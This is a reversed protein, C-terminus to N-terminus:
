DNQNEDAPTDNQNQEQNQQDNQNQNDNQENDNQGNNNNGSNGTDNSDSQNDQNNNQNEDQGNNQEENPDNAQQSDPVSVQTSAPDGREGNAFPTVTITYTKGPQAGNITIGNSNATQTQGDVSVEFTASGDYDWSVDIAGSSESYSAQLNSVSSLKEDETDESGTSVSVSRAESKESSSTSVAVVQIEYKAGQQVSEINFSDDGTTGINQMGGGNVSASVVFSADEDSDHDWDVEIRNNSEDYNATLNSVPPFGDEKPKQVQQSPTNGKVFLENTTNGSSGSAIVAPNSGRVVPLEVVSDPKSFDPSQKGESLKEMTNKFLYLPIQTNNSGPIVDKKGNDDTYGGAWVSITYNTSYGAFWADPSGERDPLSTTGTKGAIPVGSVQANKGTGEQVVTKMMDTVMYATYDSMAAEPKPKLDVTKGDPYEVKLVAHPKNYVGENGFASYAGALQLPTVGTGTGGIADRISIKDDKFNIGLGESFKQAKDYGTEELTKVAPVNLSQALAHRISMMGGYSRNWNRIESNGVKYPKDDNIQHYTSWKNYEIAPGYAVIPKATSGPQQGGMIANNWGDVNENNRNGGIARIEGTKTDVVTMGVQMEKDPYPIPNSESDTLLSQVHDQAKTDLTTYIKLGDTYMNTGDLKEDIEKRVEQLFAQYPTKTEQKKDTLLSPIDTKLAEDAQKQTIKGHRVMLKLVTQMREKTLEPHEFPNYASPRQPMGALIAAEPLTLDKLDKKGFYTEAAAAVGYAGSGYYIKNLYMQLIEEKSYERELKLALWQEQVKLSIKKDPSLFAREVVQQTITSAGESGFGNTFNAKIAGAIRRLDIGHHQFFRSDETATVADILEQPLDDYTVKQRKENGVTAVVKKNMDLVQSPFPDSLKAEDIDPSTAIFYLLMGGGILFCTLFVIGVILGIKRVLPRKRAKAVKKQNRRGMRSQGNDAM